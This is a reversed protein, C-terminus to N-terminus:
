NPKTLGKRENLAIIKATKDGTTVFDRHIINIYKLQEDTLGEIYADAKPAFIEELQEPGKLPQNSGWTRQCQLNFFGEKSKSDEIYKDLQALLAEDSTSHVDGDYPSYLVEDVKKFLIEENPNVARGWIVFLRHGKAKMTKLTLTDIATDTTVCMDCFGDINDVLYEYTKNSAEDDTFHQFNLILVDDYTSLYTKIDGVVASFKQTKFDGHQIYLEGGDLMTRLDFYRVGCKLQELISSNQCVLLYRALDFVSGDLDAAGADHAGPMVVDILRADEKITDTMWNAYPYDQKEVYEKTDPYIIIVVTCLVIVAVLIVIFATKLAKM